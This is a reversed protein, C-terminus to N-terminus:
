HHCCIIDVHFRSCLTIKVAAYRANGHATDAYAHIHRNSGNVLADRVGLKGTGRIFFPVGHTSIRTGLIFDINMQVARGLIALGIAAYISRLPSQANIACFEEAQLARVAVELPCSIYLYTKGRRCGILLPNMGLDAFFSQRSRSIDIHLRQVGAINELFIQFDRHAATDRGSYSVVNDMCIVVGIHRHIFGADRALVDGYFGFLRLCVFAGINLHLCTGPSYTNTYAYAIRPYDILSGRIHVDRVAGDLPRLINGYTGQVLALVFGLNKIHTNRRYICGGGKGTHFIFVINPDPQVSCVINGSGFIDSNVGLFGIREFGMSLTDTDTTDIHRYVMGGNLVAFLVILFIYDLTVGHGFDRARIARELSIREMKTGRIIGLGFETRAIHCDGNDAYAPHPAFANHIHPSNYVYGTAAEIRFIHLKGGQQATGVPASQLAIDFPMIDRHCRYCRISYHQIGCDIAHDLYGIARKVCIGVQQEVIGGIHIAFGIDIINRCSGHSHAIGTGIDATRLRKVAGKRTLAPNRLQVAQLHLRAAFVCAFSKGVRAAATDHAINTRMHAISGRVLDLASDAALPINCLLGINESGLIVFGAEGSRFSMAANDAHAAGTHVIFNIGGRIGGHFVVRFDGGVANIDARGIGNGGSGIVIDIAITCFIYLGIREFIMETPNNGAIAESAKQINRFFARDSDTLPRLNGRVIQLFVNSRRLIVQHIMGLGLAAASHNHRIGNGFVFQIDVIRHVHLTTRKEAILLRSRRLINQERGIVILRKIGM